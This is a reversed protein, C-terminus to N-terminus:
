ITQRMHLDADLFCAPVLMNMSSSLSPLLSNRVQALVWSVLPGCAKSARNVVEFNFDPDSLYDKKLQARLKPSIKESDFSVVSPIFSKDMVMRRISNWDTEKNGLLLAVAELTIRVKDPPRALTKIEDLHTRKINSVSKKAEEVAPEAKALDEYAKEKKIGIAENQKELETRLLLSAQRKEEAVQQDKVMQKLKENAEAQKAELVTSKERLTKQLESVALETDRLKQLGVNLHL